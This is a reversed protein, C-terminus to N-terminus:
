RLIPVAGSGGGRGTLLSILGTADGRAVAIDALIGLVARVTARPPDWRHGLAAAIDLGHVTVELLRTPLYDAVTMSGFPTAVVVDGDVSALRGDLTHLATRYEAVPDAVASAEARARGAIAAALDEDRGDLYAIFYAAPGDLDPTSGAPRDLYQVPTTLARTTHATLEALDWEGLAPRGWDTVHDLIELVEGATGLLLARSEDWQTPTAQGPYANGM